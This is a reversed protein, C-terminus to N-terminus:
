SRAANLKGGARISQPFIRYEVSLRNEDQEDGRRGLHRFPRGGDDAIGPKRDCVKARRLMLRTRSINELFNFREPEL